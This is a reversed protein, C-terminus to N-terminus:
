TLLFYQEALYFYLLCWTNNTKLWGSGFLLPLIKYWHKVIVCPSSAELRTVSLARYDM